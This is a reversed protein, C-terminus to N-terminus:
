RVELLGVDLILSAYPPIRDGSGLPGYALDSPVILRRTGGVKMGRVGEELASIVQEDGVVFELPDERDVTSEILTGDTLWSHYHIQVTQGPGATAGDGVQIDLYELGSTTRLPEVGMPLTPPGEKPDGHM